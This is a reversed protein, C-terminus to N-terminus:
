CRGCRYGCIKRCGICCQEKCMEEGSGALVEDAMLSLANIHASCGLETMYRCGYIEERKRGEQEEICQECSMHTKISCDIYGDQYVSINCAVCEQIELGEFKVFKECYSVPHFIGGRCWHAQEGPKNWNSWSKRPPRGPHAKDYPDVRARKDDYCDGYPCRGSQKYLCKDCVCSSCSWITSKVAKTYEFISIQGKIQKM